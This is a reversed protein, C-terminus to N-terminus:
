MRTRLKEVIVKMINNFVDGGIKSLMMVASFTSLNRTSSEGIVAMVEDLM